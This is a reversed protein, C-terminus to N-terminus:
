ANGGDDFTWTGLPNEAQDVVDIVKEGSGEFASADLKLIDSQDNHVTTADEWSSILVNTYVPGDSALDSTYDTGFVDGVPTAPSHNWFGGPFKICPNTIVTTGEHAKVAASRRTLITNIETESVAACWDVLLNASTEYSRLSNGYYNRYFYFNGNEQIDFDVTNDIFNSWYVLFGYPAAGDPLSLVQIATESGVFTNSWLRTESSKADIKGALDISLATTNNLFVCSDILIEDTSADLAVEYGTFTCQRIDMGGNYIATPADDTSTFYVCDTNVNWAGNVDIAGLFDTIGTQGNNGTGWGHLTLSTGRDQFADPIRLTGKYVTEPLYVTYGKGPKINEALTNLYDQLADLTDDAPRHEVTPDVFYIIDVSNYITVPELTETGCTIEVTVWIKVYGPYGKKFFLMASHGDEPASITTKTPDNEDWSVQADGSLVETGMETITFRCEDEPVAIYYETGDERTAKKGAVINLFACFGYSNNPDAPDSTGPCQAYLEFNVTQYAEDLWGFGVAYDTGPVEYPAPTIQDDPEEAAWATGPLLSLMMALTLLLALMRKKM